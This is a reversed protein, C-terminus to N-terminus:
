TLFNFYMYMDLTLSLLRYGRFFSFDFTRNFQDKFIGCNAICKSFKDNPRMVSPCTQCSENASADLPSATTPRKTVPSTTPIRTAASPSPTSTTEKLILTRLFYDVYEPTVAEESSVSAGPCKLCKGKDLYFGNECPICRNYLIQFNFSNNKRKM